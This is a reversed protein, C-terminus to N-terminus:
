SHTWAHAALLVRESDVLGDLSTTTSRVAAHRSLGVALYTSSASGPHPALASNGWGGLVLVAVVLARRMRASM